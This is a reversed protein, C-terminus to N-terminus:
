KAAPFFVMDGLSHRFNVSAYYSVAQVGLGLWRTALKVWLSSGPHLFPPGPTPQTELEGVVVIPWVNETKKTRSCRPRQFTQSPGFLLRMHEPSISTVDGWVGLM